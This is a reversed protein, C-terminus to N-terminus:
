IFAWPKETISSNVPILKQENEMFICIVVCVPMKIFILPRTVLSNFLGIVDSM